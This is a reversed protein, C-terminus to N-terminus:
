GDGDVSFSRFAKRADVVLDASFDLVTDQRKVAITMM